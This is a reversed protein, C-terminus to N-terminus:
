KIRFIWKNDFIKMQSEPPVLVWTQNHMLANYEEAMAQKWQPHLLAEQATHPETPTSSSLATFAKKKFIGVKSWTIMPHSPISTNLLSTENLDYSFSERTNALPNNAPVVNDKKYPPLDRPVMIRVLHFLM